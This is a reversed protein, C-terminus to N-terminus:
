PALFGQLTEGTRPNSLRWGGGADSEFHLAPPLEEGALAGPLHLWLLRPSARGRGGFCRQEAPFDVRWFSGTRRAIVLEMPPKSFSLLFDGQPNTAVLLEGALEPADPRPHWVAQGLDSKWGPGTLDVPPLEPTVCGVPLLCLLMVVCLLAVISTHGRLPRPSTRGGNAAGKPTM